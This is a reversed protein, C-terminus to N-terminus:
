HYERHFGEIRFYALEGEGVLKVYSVGQLPVRQGYTVQVLNGEADFAYVMASDSLVITFDDVNEGAFTQLYRVTNEMNIYLDCYSFSLDSCFTTCNHETSSYAPYITTSHLESLDYSERASYYYQIKEPFEVCWAYFDEFVSDGYAKKFCDVEDEPWFIVSNGNGDHAFSIWSTYDGYTEDLYQMLAEGYTYTMFHGSKLLSFWELMSYDPLNEILDPNDAVTSEQCWHGLSQALAMDHQELYQIVRVSVINAFGEEIMNNFRYYTQYFRLVHALEHAITCNQGVFLTHTQLLVMHMGQDGRSNVYTGYGAKGDYGGLKATFAPNDAYSTILIKKGGYSANKFYLGTVTELTRCLADTKEALDNVVYVGPGIEYIVYETEIYTIETTVYGGTFEPPIEKFYPCVTCTIGDEAYLHAEISAAAGCEMCAMAHTTPTCEFNSYNHNVKSVPDEATIKKSCMLCCLGVVNESESCITHPTEEILTSEVLIRYCVSCGIEDTFGISTCTAPRGEASVVEKHELKPIEKSELLV